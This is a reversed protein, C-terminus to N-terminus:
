THLWFWSTILEDYISSAAAKKSKRLFMYLYLSAIVYLACTIAELAQLRNVHQTERKKKKIQECFSM